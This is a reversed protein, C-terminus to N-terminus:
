LNAQTKIDVMLQNTQKVLQEWNVRSNGVPKGKITMLAQLQAQQWRLQHQKLDFIVQNYSEKLQRSVELAYAHEAREIVKRLEERIKEREHVTNWHILQEATLGAIVSAALGAGAFGLPVLITGALVISVASGVRSIIKLTNSNSLPIERQEVSATDVSVNPESLAQLPYKFQRSTEEQLWQLDGVIQQNITKSLQGALNRLERELRFPLDREWWTRIDNSRKLEYLLVELITTQNNQLHNRLLDDVKQRKLDLKQEIQQWVLNQSDIQQQRKKLELNREQENKNYVELGTQAASRIVDLVGLLTHAVQQVRVSVIDTENIIEQIAIKLNGTGDSSKVSTPVVKISSSRSTTHRTVYNIVDEYEEKLLKDIKSIAIILPIGRRVCESLFQVEARKLPMLADIVLVVCDVEELLLNAVDKLEEESADLALKEMLYFSNETLWQDSLNISVLAESSEPFLDKNHLDELPHWVQDNALLFGEKDTNGLISFQTNSSLATVPLVQKQLLQNVLSSKGSNHGGIFAINISNRGMKKLAQLVPETADLCGTQTAIERTTKLWTGFKQALNSEGYTLPNENTM